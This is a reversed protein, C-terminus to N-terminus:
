FCIRFHRVVTRDPSEKKGPSGMEQLASIPVSLTVYNFPGSRSRGYNPPPNPEGLLKISPSSCGKSGLTQDDIMIYAPIQLHPIYDGEIFKTSFCPIIKPLVVHLYLIKSSEFTMFVINWSRKALVHRLAHEIIVTVNTSECLRSMEPNSKNLWTPWSWNYKSFNTHM